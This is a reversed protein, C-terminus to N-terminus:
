KFVSKKIMTVYCMHIIYFCGHFNSKDFLIKKNVKKSKNQFKCFNNFKNCNPEASLLNVLQEVLFKRIAFNLVVLIEM